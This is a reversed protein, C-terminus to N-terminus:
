GRRGAGSRQVMCLGRGLTDPPRPITAAVTATTTTACSATGHCGSARHALPGHPGPAPATATTTTPKRQQAQGRGGWGVGQELCHPLARPAQTGASGLVQHQLQLRAPLPVQLQTRGSLPPPPRLLPVQQLGQRRQHSGVQGAWKSLFHHAVAQALDQLLDHCGNLVRANAAGGGLLCHHQLHHSQQAADM